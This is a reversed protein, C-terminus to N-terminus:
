SVRVRLGSFSIFLTFVDPRRSANTDQGDLDWVMMVCVRGMYYSIFLFKPRTRLTMITSKSVATPQRKLCLVCPSACQGNFLLSFSSLHWDVTDTDSRWGALKGICPGVVVFVCLYQVHAM